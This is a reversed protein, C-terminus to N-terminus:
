AAICAESSRRIGESIAQAYRDFARGEPLLLRPIALECELLRLHGQDDRIGDVRGFWLWGYREVLM